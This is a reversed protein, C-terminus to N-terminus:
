KESMIYSIKIKNYLIRILYRVLLTWYKLNQLVNAFIQCKCLVSAIGEM